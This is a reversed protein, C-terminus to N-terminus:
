AESSRSVNKKQMLMLQHQKILFEQAQEHSM